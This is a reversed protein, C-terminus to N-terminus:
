ETGVYPNIYEIMQLSKKLKIWKLLHPALYKRCLLQQYSLSNEVLAILCLVRSVTVESYENM